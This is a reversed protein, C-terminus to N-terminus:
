PSCCGSKVWHIPCLGSMSSRVGEMAVRRWLELRRFRPAQWAAGDIALGACSPPDVNRLWNRNM